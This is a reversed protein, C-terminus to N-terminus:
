EITRHLPTKLGIRKEAGGIQEKLFAYRSFRRHKIRMFELGAAHAFAGGFRLGREANEGVRVCAGRLHMQEGIAAIMDHDRTRAAAVAQPVSSGQGAPALIGCVIAPPRENIQAVTLLAHNPGRAM